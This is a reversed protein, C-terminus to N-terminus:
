RRPGWAHHLREFSVPWRGLDDRILVKRFELDVLIIKGFFWRGSTHLSEFRVWM